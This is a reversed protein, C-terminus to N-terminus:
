PACSKHEADETASRSKQSHHAYIALLRRRFIDISLSQDFLMRANRGIRIRLLPEQILRTIAVGLAERNGPPILLATQGDTFIEPIAGVPTTICPVGLSAAELLVLPMGEHYSPLILVSAQALLATTDARGLWGTFRVRGTLGAQEIQSRFPAQDGDGAVVLEWACARLTESALAAILDALGKRPQLNGLFVLV